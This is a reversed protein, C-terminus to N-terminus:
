RRSVFRNPIYPSIVTDGPAVFLALEGGLLEGTATYAGIAAFWRSTPALDIAGDLVNGVDHVLTYALSQQGAHIKYGLVDPDASADWAFHVLTM